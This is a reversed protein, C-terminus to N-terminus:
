NNISPLYSPRGRKYKSKGILLTNKDILIYETKITQDKFTRETYSEGFWPDYLVLTVPADIDEEWKSDFFSKSYGKYESFQRGNSEYIKREFVTTDWIEYWYGHLEKQGWALGLFLTLTLLRKMCFNVYYVGIFLFAGALLSNM